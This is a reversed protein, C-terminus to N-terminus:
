VKPPNFNFGTNEALTQTTVLSSITCNYFACGIFDAGAKSETANIYFNTFITDVIKRNNETFFNTAATKASLVCNKILAPTGIYPSDIEVTCNDLMDSIAPYGAFFCKHAEKSTGIHGTNFKCNELSSISYIFNRAATSNVVCNKLTINSKGRILGYRWDTYSDTGSIDFECNDFVVNKNEGANPYANAVNRPIYDTEFICNRFAINECYQTEITSVTGGALVIVPVGNGDQTKSIFKCHNVTINEIIGVQSWIALLEDGGGISYFVCNNVEGYQTKNSTYCNRIWCGGNPANRHEVYCNNISFNSCAAYVDFGCTVTKTTSVIECNNVTFNNCNIFGFTNAYLCLKYEPDTNDTISVGDVTFGNVGNYLFLFLNSNDYSAGGKIPRASTIQAGNGFFSSKCVIQKGGIRYKSNPNLFVYGGNNNAYEFASNFADSCDIIGTTDAGFWDPCANQMYKDVKGSLNNYQENLFELQANFNASLAWYQENTPLTGKPPFCKATYSNGDTYLVVDLAGYQTNVDWEGMHRPVYRAGIYQTTAM